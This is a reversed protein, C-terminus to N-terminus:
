LVETTTAVGYGVIAVAHDHEVGTPCDVDSYIGSKYLYFSLDTSTSISIPM